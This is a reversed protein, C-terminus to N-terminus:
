QRHSMIKRIESMKHIREACIQKWEAGKQFNNILKLFKFVHHGYIQLIYNHGNRHKTKIISCEVEHTRLEAQYEELVNLHKSRKQIRFTYTGSRCFIIRPSFELFIENLRQFGRLLTWRFM